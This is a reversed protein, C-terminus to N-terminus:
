GYFPEAWSGENRVVCWAGLSWLVLKLSALLWFFSLSAYNCGQFTWVSGLCWGLQFGSFFGDSRVRLVEMVKAAEFHTKKGEEFHRRKPIKKPDVRGSVLRDGLFHSKGFPVSQRGVVLWGDEPANATPPPIKGELRSAGPTWAWCARNPNDWPTRQLRPAKIYLRYLRRM